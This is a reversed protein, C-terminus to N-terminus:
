LAARELLLQDAVDITRLADAAYGDAGVDRWLDAALNFPHGGVLIIPRPLTPVVTPDNEDLLPENFRNEQWPYDFRVRRTGEQGPPPSCSALAQSFPFRFHAAPTRTPPLICRDGIGPSGGLRSRM